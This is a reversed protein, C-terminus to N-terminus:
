QDIPAGLVQAGYLQQKSMRFQFTRHAVEANLHIVGQLHSLLCLYSPHPSRSRRSDCDPWSRFDVRATSEGWLPGGGLVVKFLRQYIGGVM